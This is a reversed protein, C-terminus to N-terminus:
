RFDCWLSLTAVSRKANPIDMNIDRGISLDWVVGQSMENNEETEEPLHLLLIESYDVVEENWTIDIENNMLWPM